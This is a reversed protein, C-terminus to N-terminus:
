QACLGACRRRPRCHQNVRPMPLLHDPKTYPVLDQGKLFEMAIYALDHEEGADYMTVINQHNLRGATEAEASFRAKVDVLEDADFEQSLAM